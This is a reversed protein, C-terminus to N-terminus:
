QRTGALTNPDAMEIPLPAETPGSSGETCIPALRPEATLWTNRIGSSRVRTSTAAPAAAPTAAAKLAGIAPTKKAMSIMRPSSPPLASPTTSSAETIEAAVVWAMAPGSGAKLTGM